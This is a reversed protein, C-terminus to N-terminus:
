IMNLRKMQNFVFRKTPKWLRRKGDFYVYASGMALGALHASHAFPLSKFGVFMGYTEFAAILALAEQARISGPILIIGIGADPYSMGFAGVIAMIAGSAGLGPKFRNMPSPWVTELHHALSALVGTSLYFAALHSSSGEFTRSYAVPPGFNYIGYMNFGLHFIGQHGFMSTFLTYNYPAVPLHWFHPYLSPVMRCAAFISTNLSIVGLGTREVESLRNWLSLVPNGSAPHQPQESPHPRRASRLLNLAELEDYIELTPKSRWGWRESQFLKVEKRVEYSAFGLYVTGVVVLCWLIPGGVRVPPLEPAAPAEPAERAEPAEPAEKTGLWRRAPRRSLRPPTSLRARRWITSRLM